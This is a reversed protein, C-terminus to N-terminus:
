QLAVLIPILARGEVLPRLAKGIVSGFAKVADNAKMAHGVTQSTTLLDGVEIQSYSADVKCYVKGIIAVQARKKNENYQEIQKKDLVIGPNFEGAGSVVGAVKKDYAKSSPELIGESSGVIMVTGPEIEDTSSTDFEEACDAGLLRIDGGCDITGNVTLRSTPNPTGIGVNGNQLISIVENDGPNRGHSIRLRGIPRGGQPGNDIHFWAFGDPPFFTIAGPARFDMGTSIRGLIHLPTRPEVTGIGVNGTSGIRLAENSNTKVILPQNDTTGLFDTSPNTNSNGRTNWQSL